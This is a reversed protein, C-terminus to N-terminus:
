ASGTPVAAAHPARVIALATAHLAEMEDETLPARAFKALDCHELFRGLLPRRSALMAGESAALDRLFEETTRHAARAGFREELYLRVADSVAVGYERALGAALLRRAEALRGLARAEPTPARRRRVLWSRIAFVLLALLILAGAVALPAPWPNPIVIPGSIDRLGAADM